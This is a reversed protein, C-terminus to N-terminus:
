LQLMKILPVTQGFDTAHDSRFLWVFLLHNLTVIFRSDVNFLNQFFEIFVSKVTLRKTLVKGGCNSCFNPQAEFQFGCSKCAM